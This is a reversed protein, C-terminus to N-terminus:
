VDLLGGTVDLAIGTSYGSEPNALFLCARAVEVDTALRKLSTKEVFFEKQESALGNLMMENEIFGPVVVNVRINFQACYRSLSKSLSLIGGKSAAYSINPGFGGTYAAQSSTNVISGNIGSKSFYEILVKNWIYTGTLNTSLTSDWIDLGMQIPDKERQFVGALHIYSTIVESYNTQIEQLFRSAEDVDSVDEIKYPIFNGLSEELRTLTSQNRGIGIVKGGNECILQALATGVGGTVGNIVYTKNEV